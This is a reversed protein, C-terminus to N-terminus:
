LTELYAELSKADHRSLHMTHGMRSDTALLLSELNPYRGDHFYPATGAVFRLSPTDFTSQRDGGARTGLDHQSKDIGAGGQHCSACGQDEAFFLARGHAALRAQEPDVRAGRRNPAPMEHLYSILAELDGGKGGPMGSGGLRDFTSTVHVKVSDHAGLWSYPASDKVRGALMITQRPGVPTSWTLSDERGDPHCSACARGDRSVRKDDTQHFLQRGRRAKASLTGKALKPAPASRLARKGEGKLDILTLKRSFQSWVVAQGAHDDVALGTPGAPV